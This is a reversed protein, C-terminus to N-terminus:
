GSISRFPLKLWSRLVPVGGIAFWIFVGLFGFAVRRLQAWLGPWQEFHGDLKYSFGYRVKEFTLGVKLPYSTFQGGFPVFDDNGSKTRDITYHMVCRNNLPQECVLHSSRVTFQDILLYFKIVRVGAVGILLMSGAIIITTLAFRVPSFALNRVMARRDDFRVYRTERCLPAACTFTRVFRGRSRPIESDAPLLGSCFASLSHPCIFAM